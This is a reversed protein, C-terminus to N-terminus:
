SADSPPFRRRSQSAPRPGLGRLAFSRGRGALPLGEAVPRGPACRPALRGITRRAGAARMAGSRGGPSDHQRRALTHRPTDPRPSIRPRRLPQGGDRTLPAAAPSVPPEAPGIARGDPIICRRPRRPREDGSRWALGSSPIPIRAQPLAVGKGTEQKRQRQEPRLQGQALRITEATPSRDMTGGTQLLLTALYIFFHM